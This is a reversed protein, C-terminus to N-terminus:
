YLVYVQVDRRGWSYCEDLTMFGLDIKNGKIAGGTDGAIAYGYGPIFLRTHYPIVAPDVAVVGYGAKYGCSTNGSAYPGCSTPGPEYASSEMTLIERWRRPGEIHPGPKMRNELIESLSPGDDSTLQKWAIVYQPRMPRITNVRTRRGVEQRGHFFLTYDLERLGDMGAQEIELGAPGFHWAEEIITEMPVVELETGRTVSIEPLQVSMGDRLAAELAPDIVAGAPLQLSLERLFGEVTSAGSSLAITENALHTNIRKLGQADAPHCGIQM